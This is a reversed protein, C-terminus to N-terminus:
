HIFVKRGNIIYIGKPLSSSTIKRGQLDYVQNDNVLPRNGEIEKIATAGEDDFYLDYSLMACAAVGEGSEKEAIFHARFPRLTRTVKSYGLTNNGSLMIIENINEETIAFPSFQGEFAAGAFQVRRPSTASIVVNSFDPSSLDSGSGANWKIIFPTGAEIVEPANVFTVSLHGEKDLQSKETDIVQATVGDGDLPSGSISIDFPLCLTNWSGDKYLTRGSLTIKKLLKGENETLVSSNDANDSLNVNWIYPVDIYDSFQYEVGESKTYSANAYYTYNGDPNDATPEKTNNTVNAELNLLAADGNKWIVSVTATREGQDNQGWTWETDYQCRYRAYLTVDAEPTFTAGAPTLSQFEEDKMECSVPATAPDQLWDMFTLNDIYKNEPLTFSQGKVVKYQTGNDYTTAKDDTAEYLTVTWIDTKENFKKGCACDETNSDGYGHAENMTYTCYTCSKLHNTEDVYSYSFGSHECAEIRVYKGEGRCADVRSATAVPLLDSDGTGSKVSLLGDLQLKGNSDYESSGIKQGRGIACANASGQATVIGGSIVVDMGNSVSSGRQVENIRGGSMEVYKGGGIGAGGGQGIATVTGDTITLQTKSYHKANSGIGAGGESGGKAYVTGGTINIYCQKINSTQVTNYGTIGAGYPGGIARVNGGTINLTGLPAVAIAGADTAEVDVTGDTIEMYAGGIVDHHGRATLEGGNIRIDPSYIASFNIGNAHVKGGTM